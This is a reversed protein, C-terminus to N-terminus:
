SKPSQSSGETSPKSYPSLPTFIRDAESTIEAWIKDGDAGAEKMTRKFVQEFEQFPARAAWLGNSVSTLLERFRKDNEPETPCGVLLSKITADLNDFYRELGEVEGSDIRAVTTSLNPILFIDSQGGCGDVWRKAHHLVYALVIYAETLTHSRRYYNKLMSKGLLVGIGICDFEPVEAFVNDYAVVLHTKSNQRLAILLEVQSDTKPYHPQPFLRDLVSHLLVKFGTVSPPEEERLEDCIEQIVMDIQIGNDGAGAFAVTCSNGEFVTIKQTSTKVYGQITEQTDACLIVGDNCLYGAAITM